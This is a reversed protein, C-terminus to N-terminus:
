AGAARGQYAPLFVEAAFTELTTPTNTRASRAELPKMWGSNMADMTELMMGAAQSSLGMQLMAPKVMMAPLQTYSLKRGIANGIITAAEHM